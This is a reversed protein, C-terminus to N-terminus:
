QRSHSYVDKREKDINCEVLEIVNNESSYKMVYLTADKYFKKSYLFAEIADSLEDYRYFMRLEGNIILVFKYM